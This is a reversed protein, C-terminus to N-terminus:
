ENLLKLYEDFYYLSSQPQSIYDKNIKGVQFDKKEYFLPKSKFWTKSTEWTGGKKIFHVWLNKDAKQSRINQYGLCQYLERFQTFPLGHLLWDEFAPYTLFINNKINNKELFHIVSCLTDQENQGSEARDLDCIVLVIDLSASHRTIWNQIDIYGGGNYNGYNISLHPYAAKVVHNPIVNMETKKGEVLILVSKGLPRKPSSPRIINRKKSM